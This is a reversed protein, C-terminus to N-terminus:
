AFPKGAVLKSVAKCFTRFEPSADSSCLPPFANSGSSELQRTGVQITIEWQTGDFTFPDDYHRKWDWAHIRDLTTWFKQWDEPQPAIVDDEAAGDKTVYQLKGDVLCIQYSPGSWGGIYAEFVKPFVARTQAM